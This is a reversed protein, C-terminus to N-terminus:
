SRSRDATLREAMLSTMNGLKAEWAEGRAFAVRREHAEPTDEALAAGVMAVFENADRAVSVIHAHKATEPLNTTVVPKGAALYERLKTPDVAVLRECVKYPILGVSFASLYGPLESHPKRPLIRVNPLPRVASLDTDAPGILLVTAEPYALAVQRLLDYDVWDSLSGYFGLIPGKVDAIDAPRPLSGAAPNFRAFNVGHNVTYTRPNYPLLDDRIADATCFILDAKRAIDRESTLLRESDVFSFAYYRDVPNYVTLRPTFSRLFPAAMPSGVWLAYNRFGLRSLQRVFQAHLLHNNLRAVAPNYVMPILFPHCVWVREAVKRTGAFLSKLKRAYRSLNGKGALSVKRTGTPNVWLIRQTRAFERMASQQFGPYDWPGSGLCVIALDQPLSRTSM